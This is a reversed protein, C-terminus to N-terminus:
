NAAPDWSLGTVSARKSTSYFSQTPHPEFGCCGRFSEPSEVARGFTSNYPSYTQHGYRRIRCHIKQRQIATSRYLGGAVWEGFAYGSVIGIFEIALRQGVEFTPAKRGSTEFRGDSVTTMLLPRRLFGVTPIKNRFKVEDPVRCPVRWQQPIPSYNALTRRPGTSRSAAKPESQPQLATLGM